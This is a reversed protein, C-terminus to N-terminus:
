HLMAGCVVQGEQNDPYLAARLVFDNGHRKACQRLGAFGIVFVALANGARVTAVNLEHCNDQNARLFFDGAKCTIKLKIALYGSRRCVM